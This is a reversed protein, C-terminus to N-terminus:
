GSRRRPRRAGCARAASRRPRRRASRASDRRRRRPTLASRESTSTRRRELSGHLEFAMLALFAVLPFAALLLFARAHGFGDIMFGAALPGLFGSASFGLALLSFNRPRDAVAGTAGVANSAAIHVVVLGSGALMAAFYLGPLAPWLYALATGLATLATGVFFPPRVGVRDIARGANVSFFMPLAAFLAGIVGVEFTSAGLALAFLAAGVRAGAFATHTLIVLLIIAALQM